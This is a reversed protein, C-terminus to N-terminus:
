WLLQAQAEAEHRRPSASASARWVQPSWGEQVGPPEVLSLKGAASPMELAVGGLHTRTVQEGM